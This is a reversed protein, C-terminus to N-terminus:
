RHRRRDVEAREAVNNVSHKSIELHLRTAGSYCKMFFSLAQKGPVQKELLVM